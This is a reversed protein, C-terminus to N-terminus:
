RRVAAVDGPPRKVPTLLTNKGVHLVNGRWDITRLTSGRAWALFLLVDRVPTLLLWKLAFGHGRTVRSCADTFLASFLCTAALAWATLASPGAILAAVGWPVPNLLPELWYGPIVRFRLMAWRTHRLWFHSLPRRRQVNEVFVPGARTGFKAQVMKFGMRQDEALLDKVDEWGGIAALTKRTLAFSKGVVQTLGLLLEGTAINAGCLSGLTMNDFAAGLTEEGAGAFINTSLGIGPMALIAAHGRLWEKPVRINADSVALVDHKAHRTLTILQNVKPNFGPEGEQLFARVRDPHKAAYDQAVAWAPDSAERVGLLIEYEGPYDLTLHTELNEVVDEDLGCMPKLVSIGPWTTPEPFRRKSVRWLLTIELICVATSMGAVALLVIATV